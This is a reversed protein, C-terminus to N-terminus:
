ARKKKRAKGFDLDPDLNAKRIQAYSFSEPGDSTELTIGAPGCERLPGRVQRTADEGADVVLKVIEGEFRAFHEPTRLPRFLGPSSVEIVYKSTLRDEAEAELLRGVARSVMACDEVSVGTAETGSPDISLRLTLRGGGRLLELEFLQFGTLEVEPRILATLHAQLSDDM